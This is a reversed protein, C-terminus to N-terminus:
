LLWQDYNKTHIIKTESVPYPNLFTTSFRANVKDNWKFEYAMIKGEIEQQQTTKQFTNSIM